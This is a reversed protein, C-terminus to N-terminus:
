VRHVEVRPVHEAPLTDHFQALAQMVHAFREPKQGLSSVLHNWHPECWPPYPCIPRTPAERVIQALREALGKPAEFEYDTGRPLSRTLAGIAEGDERLSQELRQCAQLLLGVKIRNNPM